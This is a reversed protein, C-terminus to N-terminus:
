YQTNLFCAKAKAGLQAARMEADSEHMNHTRTWDPSRVIIENGGSFHLKILEWPRKRAARSKKDGGIQRKEGVIAHLSQWRKWTMVQKVESYWIKHQM